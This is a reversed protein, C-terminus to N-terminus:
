MLARGVGAKLIIKKESNTIDLSVRLHGVNFVLQPFNFHQVFSNQAWHARQAGFGEM